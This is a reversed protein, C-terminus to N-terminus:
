RFEPKIERRLLIEVARQPPLGAYLVHHVQTSIPLEVGAQAAKDVIVAATRAGEVAQGIQAIAEDLSHGAGLALGLRRNRSQNDTCTLVLDGLGSLGMLTETRAGVAEGLRMLEALGRTILAARANAGFGLGDSIGAAIALVNKLAGGLEVGLVDESTYTRLTGGNLWTTVEQAFAGEWSAVTLATPQGRALEQAFSPGSVVAQPLPRPLEQAIIEHLWQGSDMELGKTAWVLGELHACQAAILRLTARFSSSPVAVLLRPADHLLQELAVVPQLSPPFDIGPLYRLNQRQERMAQMQVPDRGWLRVPVGQRALHIALATGWSGAGIVGVCPITQM